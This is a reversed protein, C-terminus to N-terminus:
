YGSGRPANTKSAAEAAKVAENKDRYTNQAAFQRALQKGYTNLRQYADKGNKDLQPLLESEPIEKAGQMTTQTGLMQQDRGMMPQNSFQQDRQWQQTPQSQQQWQPQQQQASPDMYAQQPGWSPQQQPYSPRQGGCGQSIYGQPAPNYNRPQQGGCGHNTYGQTQMQISDNADATFNKPQQGGCGKGAGGCGAALTIGSDSINADVPTQSAFLMGGAMGMLALKKFNSKDM